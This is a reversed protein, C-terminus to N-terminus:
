NHLPLLLPITRRSPVDTLLMEIAINISGEKWADM